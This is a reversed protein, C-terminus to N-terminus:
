LFLRFGAYWLISTGSGALSGPSADIDVLGSCAPFVYAKGLDM